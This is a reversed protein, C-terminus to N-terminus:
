HQSDSYAYSHSRASTGTANLPRAMGGGIVGLLGSVCAVCGFVLMAVDAVLAATQWRTLSREGLLGARPACLSLRLHMAAPFIFGMSTVLLAGVLGSFLAFNQAYAAVLCTLGVEAVRLSFRKLDALTVTLVCHRRKGVDGKKSLWCPCLDITAASSSSSSSSSSSHGGGGTRDTTDQELPHYRVPKASSSASSSSSSSPVGEGATSNENGGASDDVDGSGGRGEPDAASVVLGIGLVEELIETAPFLMGPYTILLTSALAVRVITTLTGAPECDTVLVGGHDAACRGLGYVSAVAGFIACVTGYTLIGAVIVRPANQRPNRISAAVPMAVLIAELTYAAQGVFLALGQASGVAQIPAASPSSSSASGNNLAETNTAIFFFVTGMVGVTYVFLGIASLIWLDKLYRIMSLIVLFPMSLGALGARTVVGPGVVPELVIELNACAAVVWATCFCLEMTVGMVLTAWSGVSGFLFRALGTYTEVSMGYIREIRFKCQVVAVMSWTCCALIVVYLLLGSWLGANTFAHPLGLVGAGFMTKTLTVYAALSSGERRAVPATMM